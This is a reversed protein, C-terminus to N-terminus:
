EKNIFKGFENDKFELTSVAETLESDSFGSIGTAVPDKYIWILEREYLSIDINNEGPKLEKVDTSRYNIEKMGEQEICYGVSYLLKCNRFTKKSRNVVTFRYTSYAGWYGDNLARAGIRKSKGYTFISDKYAEAFKKLNEVNANDEVFQRIANDGQDETIAGSKVALMQLAKDKQFQYLGRSDIVHFNGEEDKQANFVVSITDCLSDRMQIIKGPIVVIDDKKEISITDFLVICSDFVLSDSNPFADKLKIANCSDIGAKLDSMLEYPKNDSCSCVFLALASIALLLKNTKKM